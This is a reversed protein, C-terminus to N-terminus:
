GEPGSYIGRPHHIDLPWGGYGIRDPFVRAGLVDNQNLIYDGVLRRSERKALSIPVYALEFTAARDREAWDNKLHNWYGYSIRILEDRAREPDWLDDITGDHELWWNGSTVGSVSRSKLTAPSFQPVWPPAEYPTPEGTDASRFSIGLDGMLCGSMTITDAVEPALDEDFEGRAERGLRYEAGAFYGLWGDGTCDLFEKARYVTITNELTSVARVAAIRSDGYMEAAFVHQNLFVSLNGEGEAGKRFAESMKPFGFRAKIRGIEEIVGSERANSHLSAAGNIPVGNEISSNGGLVPRNQILATRAGMRAASLAAVSGAAGAGVVIVDWEGMEIPALSIGTLRAREARIAEVEVPPGYAMDSTLILADCRGYYGTQDNLALPIDGAPLEFDGVNEWTWGEADAVGLLRDVTEGNISIRFSGPSHEPIWNKTRAWLRYTGAAAVPVRTTADEVPTGVGAAILYASGMIHVFQTDLLWGGYDDFDEADIWIFGDEVMNVERAPKRFVRKPAGIRQPEVTVDAQAVLSDRGEQHSAAIQEASLARNYIRVEDIVGSFSYRGLLAGVGCSTLSPDVPGSARTPPAPDPEGDVYIRMASGDYV